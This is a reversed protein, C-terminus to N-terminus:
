NGVLKLYIETYLFLAAGLTVFVIGAIAVIRAWQTPQYSPDDVLRTVCYYNLAYYVPAFLLSLAGATTVLFVPAPVATMFFVALVYIAIMFGWYARSSFRDDKQHPMLLRMTEAFARPFGDMCNYATSFMALFAATFFVPYMWQGLITTFIESLTEAV